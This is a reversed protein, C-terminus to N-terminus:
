EVITIDPLSGHLKSAIVFAIVSVIIGFMFVNYAIKLLRYKDGLAVGQDYLNKILSLYLHHKDNIIQFMEKSYDEFNMRYFNGFFLLNVKKDEAEAHDFVGDSVTPRTALISFIITLLNVILFMIVPITLYPYIEMRRVMVSLFVSIIISNVSILIHAKNDAQENLRQSIGSAIRFLTETGREPQELIDEKAKEENLQGNGTYDHLLKNMPNITLHKLEAKKKLKQLNQRKKKNLLEKCYETHYHHNELLDITSNRWDDKNIEIHHLAETEKRMLKDLIPFDDTGFHYLDADCVIQELLNDPSQPIKTSLICKKIASTTEEDVDYHMLFEEAKKAGVREHSLGEHEYYGIDHFWAAITCIFFEKDSLQYHHAIQNVATVVSEIHALKHYHLNLNEHEILFRRVYDAAKEIIRQYNMYQNSYNHFAKRELTRKM